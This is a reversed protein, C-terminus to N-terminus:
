SQLQQWLHMQECHVGVLTFVPGSVCVCAKCVSDYNWRVDLDHEYNIRLVSYLNTSM